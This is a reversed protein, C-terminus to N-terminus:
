HWYMLPAGDAIFVAITGARSQFYKQPLPDIHSPRGPYPNFDPMMNGVESAEASTSVTAAQEHGEEILEKTKGMWYRHVSSEQQKDQSQELSARLFSLSAAASGITLM